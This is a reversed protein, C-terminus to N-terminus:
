MPSRGGVSRPAFLPLERLAEAVRVLENAEQTTFGAKFAIFRGVDSGFRQRHEWVVEVLRATGATLQASLVSLEDM